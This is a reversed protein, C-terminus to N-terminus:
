GGIAYTVVLTVGTQNEADDSTVVDIINPGENLTVTVAFNGQNDAIAVGENVSVVAAPNTRGRVEVTNANTIYNDQPQTVVLSLGAVSTSQLGTGSPASSPSLTNVTPPASTMASPTPSTAQPSAAPSSTPAGCAVLLTILATPIALVAIIVSNLLTKRKLSKVEKYSSITKM